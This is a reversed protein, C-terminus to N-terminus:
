SRPSPCTHLGVSFIKMCFRGRMYASGEYNDIKIFFDLIPKGSFGVLFKIDHFEVDNVSDSVSNPSYIIRNNIILRLIFFSFDKNSPFKIKM